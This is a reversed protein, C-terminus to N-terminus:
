KLAMGTKRDQAMQSQAIQYTTVLTESSRQEEMTLTYFGEV